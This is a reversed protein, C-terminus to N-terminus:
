SLRRLAASKTRWAAGRQRWRRRGAQVRGHETVEALAFLVGEEVRGLGDGAGGGIEESLDRALFFDDDDGAEELAAGGAKVVVGGGNELGSPESEPLYRLICM